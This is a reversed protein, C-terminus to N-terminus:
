SSRRYLSSLYSFYVFYKYDILAAIKDILRM